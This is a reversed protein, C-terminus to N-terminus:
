LQIYLWKSNQCKNTKEKKPLIFYAYRSLTRTLTYYILHFLEFYAGIESTWPIEFHIQVFAVAHIQRLLCSLGILFSWLILSPISGTDKSLWGPKLTDSHSPSLLTLAFTLIAVTFTNSGTVSRMLRSIPIIEIWLIM